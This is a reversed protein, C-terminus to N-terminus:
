KGQKTDHLVSAMHRIQNLKAPILVGTDNVKVVEQLLHKMGETDRSFVKGPVLSSLEDFVKSSESNSFLDKMQINNLVSLQHKMSEFLGTILKMKLGQSTDPNVTGMVKEIIYKYNHDKYGSEKMFTKMVELPDYIHDMIDDIEKPEPLPIGVADGIEKLRVFFDNKLMDLEKELNKLRHIKVNAEDKMLGLYSAIDRSNEDLLGLSHNIKNLRKKEDDMKQQYYKSYATFIKKFNRAFTINLQTSNWGSLLERVKVSDHRDPTRSDIKLVDLYKIGSKELQKRCTEVVEDDQTGGYGTMIMVLPINRNLRNMFEIAGTKLTGDKVKVLWLIYNCSNLQDLAIREDTNASYYLQYDKNFGPTDLFAINEYEVTPSQIFMAKALRALPMEYKQAFNHDILGLEDKTITFVRNFMNLVTIIEETSKMVYSPVSTSPDNDFPLIREKLLFHNIFTSKGSSFEGGVGVLNKGALGPFVAFESFKSFEYLFTSFHTASDPPADNRSFNRFDINIFKELKDLSQRVIDVKNNDADKIVKKIFEIERLEQEDTVPNLEAM